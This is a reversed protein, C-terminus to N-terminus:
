EEKTLFRFTVAKGTVTLYVKGGREEPAGMQIDKVYVIRNMDSLRDFFMAVEHFSGGVELEVPVEAVYERKIEVLPRFQRVELGVKKGTTSIGKLLGPIERKNPLEKLAQTLDAQLQRLREKALNRNAVRVEVKALKNKYERRKSELDQLTSSTPLYFAAFLAGALIAVVGVYIAIRQNRAIRSLRDLITAFNM